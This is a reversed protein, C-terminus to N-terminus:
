KQHGTGTGNNHQEDATEPKDDDDGSPQNTTMYVNLNNM